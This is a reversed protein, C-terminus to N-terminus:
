NIIKGKKFFYTLEIKSIINVKEEIMEKIIPHEISVAPNIIVLHLFSYVEKSLSYLINYVYNKNNDAFDKLALKNDDYLFVNAGKKNLLKLAALGSKGLGFILVNKNKFNM